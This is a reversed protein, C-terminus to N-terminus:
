IRTLSFSYYGAFAILTKSIADASTSRAARNPYRFRRNKFNGGVIPRMSIARNLESTIMRASKM